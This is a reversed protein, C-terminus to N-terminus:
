SMSKRFFNWKGVRFFTSSKKEKESFIENIVWQKNSMEYEVGNSEKSIHM